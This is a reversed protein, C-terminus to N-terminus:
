PKKNRIKCKSWLIVYGIAPIVFFIIVNLMYILINVQQERYLGWFFGGLYNIHLIGIGMLILCVGTCRSFCVGYQSQIGKRVKIKSAFILRYAGYGFYVLAWILLM